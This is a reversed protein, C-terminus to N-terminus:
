SHSKYFVLYCMSSGELDVNRLRGIVYTQGTGDLREQFLGISDNKVKSM